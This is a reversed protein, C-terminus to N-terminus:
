VGVLRRGCQSSCVPYPGCPIMEDEHIDKGCQECVTWGDFERYEGAGASPFQKATTDHISGDARKYWWHQEERNWIPCYYWGRVLTLTPDDAVAAESMEKCKGRYRLYDSM